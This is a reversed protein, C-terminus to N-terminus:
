VELFFTDPNNKDFCENAWMITVLDDYGINTISHTYGPPIDVFELKEGSVKYEIIEDSGIDRFKILAEGHVVLFKETKTHHWHNGKTIGPKTVNVSVQGHNDTKIFETFSGREDYNGKLNYSFEETPLFSLYTSYLKKTFEDKFDPLYLNNRSEKFSYLLEALEGLTVKYEKEISYYVNENTNNSNLAYIFENVVDDIYVLRLETNPNNITIQLDRSINYCFTAVVSNYNPKSWKGFVNPLRFIFIVTNNEKSYELLVQEALKKSEGYENELEAQISSTILIPATNKNKKLLSVLLSTFEVNGEYFESSNKPRNIGALHYVFDCNKTYEDLEKETTNRTCLLLDNFGRNKLEYVLNKGIFGNAGTILIKM